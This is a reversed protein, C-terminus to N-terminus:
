RRSKHAHHEHSCELQHSQRHHTQPGPCPFSPPWVQHYSIVKSYYYLMTYPTITGSLFVHEELWKNFCLRVDEQIKISFSIHICTENLDLNSWQCVWVWHSQVVFVVCCVVLFVFFVSVITGGGRWRGTAEIKFIDLNGYMTCYLTMTAM